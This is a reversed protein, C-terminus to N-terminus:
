WSTFCDCACVRDRVLVLLLMLVRKTCGIFIKSVGVLEVVGVLYGACSIQCISNLHVRRERMDTM